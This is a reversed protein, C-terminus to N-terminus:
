LVIRAATEVIPAAATAFLTAAALIFTTMLLFSPRLNTM